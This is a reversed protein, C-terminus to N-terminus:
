SQEINMKRFSRNSDVRHTFKLRYIVNLRLVDLVKIKLSLILNWLKDSSEQVKVLTKIIFGAFLLIVSSVGLVGYMLNARIDTLMDQEMHHLKKIVRNCFKIMNIFSNQFLFYSDPTLLSIIGPDSNLINQAHFLYKYLIDIFNLSNQVPSSDILDYILTSESIFVQQYFDQLNYKYIFDQLDSLTTNFLEISSQIKQYNTINSIQYSSIRNNLDLERINNRLYNIHYKVGNLNRDIDGIDISERITRGLTVAIAINVAVLLLVQKFRVFIGFVIKLRNVNKKIDTMFKKNKVEFSGSKSKFSANNASGFHMPLGISQIVKFQDTGKEMHSILRSSNSTDGHTISGEFFKSEDMSAELEVLDELQVGKSEEISYKTSYKCVRSLDIEELDEKDAYAYVINLYESRFAHTM